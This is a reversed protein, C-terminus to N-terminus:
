SYAQAHNTSGHPLHTEINPRPNSLFCFTQHCFAAALLQYYIYDTLLLQIIPNKLLRELGGGGGGGGGAGATCAGVFGVAACVPPLLECGLM